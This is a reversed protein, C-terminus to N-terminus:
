YKCSTLWISGPLPVPPLLCAPLCAASWSTQGVTCSLSLLSSGAIFCIRCFFCCPTPPKCSQNVSQSIISQDIILPHHTFSRTTLNSTVFPGRTDTLVCKAVVPWSRARCPGSHFGLWGDGAGPEFAKPPCRCLPQRLLSIGWGVLATTGLCVVVVWAVKDM